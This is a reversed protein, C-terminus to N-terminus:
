EAPHLLPEALNPEVPAEPEDAILQVYKDRIGAFHQQSIESEPDISLARAAESLASRLSELIAPRDPAVWLIKAQHEFARSLLVHSSVSRPSRAIGARGLAMMWAVSRRADDLRGARRAAIEQLGGRQSIREIVKERLDFDFRLEAAKADLDRLIHEAIQDPDLRRSAPSETFECSDCAVLDALWMGLQEPLRAEVPFKALAAVITANAVESPEGASQAFVVLLELAPDQPSQALLQRAAELNARRITEALEPQQRELTQALGLWAVQVMVIADIAAPNGAHPLLVRQATRLDDVAADPRSHSRQVGGRHVLINAYQSAIRADENLRTASLSLLDAADDLLPRVANPQGTRAFHNALRLELASITLAHDAAIEPTRRLKDTLGLVVPLSKGIRDNALPEPPEVTAELLGVLESVADNAVLEGQLARALAAEARQRQYIAQYWLASLALFSLISITLLTGALNALAPNRRRWRSLREYRSVPRARIVHGDLWRRLDEALAAASGYRRSPDKELCVLCITELDRPLDPILARPSVPDRHRVWDLTKVATAAQFPPRGVLMAYLTAGLAFVDAAAGVSDSLGGAQEPAMFAPTGRPELMPGDGSRDSANLAIGFDSLIPRCANLDTGVPGDLLINAPKIDLHLVGAQHLSDVALAITEILRASERPSLPGTMVSKLSGGPILELVLYLQGDFEGADHLQVVNPHRFQGLTKAERLWRARTKADLTQPSSVVKIAVRRGIPSQLAEYVVGGGGRGLVGTILFGPITPMSFSRPDSLASASFSESHDTRALSELREQCHECDAVHREIRGLTVSGLPERGLRRLDEATLCDGSM